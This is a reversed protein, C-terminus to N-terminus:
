LLLIQCAPPPVPVSFSMTIDSDLLSRADEHTLPRLMLSTVGLSPAVSTPVHPSCVHIPPILVSGGYIFSPVEPPIGDPITFARWHEATSALSSFGREFPHPTHTPHWGHAPPPLGGHPHFPHFGEGMLLLLGYVLGFGGQLPHLMLETPTVAPRGSM